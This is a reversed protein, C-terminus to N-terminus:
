LSAEQKFRVPHLTAPGQHFQLLNTKTREHLNSPPHSDGNNKHGAARFQDEKRGADLGHVILQETIVEMETGTAVNDLREANESMDFRNIEDDIKLLEEKSWKTESAM